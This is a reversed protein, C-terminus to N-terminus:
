KSVTYTQQSANTAYDFERLLLSGSPQQEVIVYGYNVNGTLPAGGNGVVVQKESPYYAFTHTHGVILLTLPYQAIISASPTVCPGTTAISGEHRVVFTYTSPKALEGSLWSSQTSDWANCAIFVFKSTWANGTGNIHITYYPKTQGIPALMKTLFANYNITIGDANGAGCNSAVAGTCEHNGMAPFVINTFSKRAGLYLDLQPGAGSGSGSAYAFMYDGTSIGFAPRPSFAEVDQWIKTIVATPYNATDNDSPPRTDGVVAFSLAPLTGGM